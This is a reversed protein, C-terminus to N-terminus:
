CSCLGPRGEGPSTAQAACVAFGAPGAEQQLLMREAQRISVM